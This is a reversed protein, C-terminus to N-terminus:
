RRRRLGVVLDRMLGCRWLGDEPVSFKADTTVRTQVRLDDLSRLRIGHCRFGNYPQASWELLRCRAPWPPPSPSAVSACPWSSCRCTPIRVARVLAELAAGEAQEGADDHPHGRGGRGVAQGRAEAVDDRDVLPSPMTPTLAGAIMSSAKMGIYKM